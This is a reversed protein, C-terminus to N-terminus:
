SGDDVTAVRSGVAITTGVKAGVLLLGGDDPGDRRGDTLGDRAVTDERVTLGVVSGEEAGTSAGDAKGVM